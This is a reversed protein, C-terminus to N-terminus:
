PNIVGNFPETKMWRGGKGLGGWKYLALIQRATIGDEADTKILYPIQHDLFDSDDDLIRYDNIDPNAKLYAEIEHGRGTDLHGLDPTAWNPYRICTVLRHKCLCDVLSSDRSERLPDKVGLRWSSSIVLRIDTNSCLRYLSACLTADWEQYRHKPGTYALHSRLTCVVGDIDLFLVRSM